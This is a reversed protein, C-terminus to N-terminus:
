CDMWPWKKADFYLRAGTLYKANPDMVIKGQQKSNLVIEGTVGGGFMIYDSFDEPDGLQKGIPQEETIARDAKLKNWSKLMGDRQIQKWSDMPTSHILVPPEYQRLFCENYSHGQYDDKAAEFCAEPMVLIANKGTAKSYGILDGVEMQWHDCQCRSVKIVYACGGNCGCMKKYSNDDTLKLIVWSPDYEQNTIPNIATEAWEDIRHIM